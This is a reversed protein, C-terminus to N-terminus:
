ISKPAPDNVDPQHQRHAADASRAPSSRATPTSFQDACERAIRGGRREDRAGPPCATTGQGRVDRRLNRRPSTPVRALYQSHIEGASPSPSNCCRTTARSTKRRTSSRDGRYPKRSRYRQIMPQWRATSSSSASQAARCSRPAPTPIPEPFGSIIASHSGPARCRAKEICCSLSNRCDQTGSMFEDVPRRRDNRALAEVGERFHQAMAGELLDGQARVQRRDRLRRAVAAFRRRSADGEVRRVPVDLEVVVFNDSNYVM